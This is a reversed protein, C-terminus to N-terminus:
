QNTENKNRYQPLKKVKSNWKDCVCAGCTCKIAFNCEICKEGTETDIEKHCAWCVTEYFKKEFANAGNTQNKMFKDTADEEHKETPSSDTSIPKWIENCLKSKPHKQMEEHERIIWLSPKYNLQKHLVQGKDDTHEKYIKYLKDNVKKTDFETKNYTGLPMEYQKGNFWFELIFDKKRTSKSLRLCLGKLHSGFSVDFPKRIYRKKSDEFSPIWSDIASNSFSLKDEKTVPKKSLEKPM